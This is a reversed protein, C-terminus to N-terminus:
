SAILNYFTGTGVYVYIDTNFTTVNASIKAVPYKYVTGHEDAIPTYGKVSIHLKGEDTLTINVEADGAEVDINTENVNDKIFSGYPLTYTSSCNVSTGINGYSNSVTMMPNFNVYVLCNATANNAMASNNVTITGIENSQSSTGKVQGDLVLSIETESVYSVSKINKGELAGSFTIDSASVSSKFTTKNETYDSIGLTITQEGEYYITGSEQLNYYSDVEGFDCAAITLTACSAVALSLATTVLKKIKM